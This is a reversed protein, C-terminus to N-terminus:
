ESLMQNNVTAAPVNPHQRTPRLPIIVMHGSTVRPPLCALYFLSCYAYLCTNVLFCLDRNLQPMERLNWPRQPKLSALHPQRLTIGSLKPLSWWYDSTHSELLLGHQMYHHMFYSASNVVPPWHEEVFWGKLNSLSLSAVDVSIRKRKLVTNYFRPWLFKKLILVNRDKDKIKLFARRESLCWKLFLGQWLVRRSICIHSWDRVSPM